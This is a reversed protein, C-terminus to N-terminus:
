YDTTGIYLTKVNISSASNSKIRFYFNLVRKTPRGLDILLENLRQNGKGTVDVIVSNYYTTTVGDYSFVEIVGSGGDSMYSSFSVKLYRQFHIVTYGDFQLPTNSTTSFFGDSIQVGYDIQPPSVRFVSMGVNLTSNKIPQFGNVDSLTVGSTVGTILQQQSQINTQLTSTSQNFGKTVNQLDNSVTGIKSNLATTSEALKREVEKTRERAIQKQVDEMTWPKDGITVSKNHPQILDISEGIIKMKDNINLPSVEVLHMNYIELSDPRLGILELDIADLSISVNAVKKNQEKIWKNAAAKLTEPTYMDNFDVAGTQVGYISILEPIDIYPNGKNVNAITLKIEQGNATESSVGLPKLRTIIDTPDIKYQINQLNEGLAIKTSKEKAYDKYWHIINASETIEIIIVGGYKNVLDEEITTLTDKDDYRYFYKEEERYTEDAPIVPKPVDVTGVTFRKYTEAGVESNHHNIVLKLLDIPAKDFEFSQKQLSDKLFAKVGEFTLQHKFEGSSEMSHDPTIVRGRFEYKKKKTNYIELMTKFSKINFASQQLFSHFLSISSSDISNVQRELTASSVESIGNSLDLITYKKTADDVNYLKLRYMM